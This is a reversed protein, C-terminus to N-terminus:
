PLRYLVFAFTRDVLRGCVMMLMILFVCFLFGKRRAASAKSLRRRGRRPMLATMEDSTDIKMTEPTTAGQRASAAAPRMMV